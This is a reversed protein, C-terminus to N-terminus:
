ILQETIPDSQVEQLNGSKIKVQDSIQCKYSLQLSLNKADSQQTEEFDSRIRILFNRIPNRNRVCDCPRRYSLKNELRILATDLQCFM